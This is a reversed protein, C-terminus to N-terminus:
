TSHWAVPVSTPSPMSARESVSAKASAPAPAASTAARPAKQAMPDTLPLMPWALAAAPMVPRMLAVSQMDRCVSTGVAWKAWSFLFTSSAPVGSCTKRPPAAGHSAGTPPPVAARRHPTEEKPMPPVLTCMIRWAASAASGGATEAAAAMGARGTWMSHTEPRVRAAAPRAAACSAAARRSCRSSSALPPTGAGDSSRTAACSREPRSAKECRMATAAVDRSPAMAASADAAREAAWGGGGRRDGDEDDMLLETELELEAVSGDARAKGFGRPGGGTTKMKGPWPECHGRM